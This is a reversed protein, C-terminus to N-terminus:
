GQFVPIVEREYWTPSFLGSLFGNHGGYTHIILRHPSALDLNYFDDVPIAPDDRSTIITLPITVDTLSGAGLTYAAFYERAGPYLGSQSILAETTERVTRISFLPSFDYRHPYLEQKRKLSRKWKKLFYPRLLWHRDIADTAKSPDLAPSIAVIRHLPTCPEQMFRRAIRLAFNGGLSFGMLFVPGSRVLESIKKVAEFAEELLTSYFLGENLHHTQGHDRLNLRFIDYGHSFLYKGTNLIYASGSGGEWGHILIVLGKSSARPRPSHFGLLRVGDGVTLIVERSAEIMPNVGMARIKLSALVTQLLSSRLYFPPNFTRNDM